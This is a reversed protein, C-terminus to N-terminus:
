DINEPRFQVWQRMAMGGREARHRRIPYCFPLLSGYGANVPLPSIELRTARPEVSVFSLRRDAKRPHMVRELSGVRAFELTGSHGGCLLGGGCIQSAPAYDDM